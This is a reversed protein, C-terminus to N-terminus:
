MGGRLKNRLALLMLEYAHVEKNNPVFLNTMALCSNRTKPRRLKLLIWCLFVIYSSYPLTRYAIDLIENVDDIVASYDQLFDDSISGTFSFSDEGSMNWPAMINNPNIVDQLEKSDREKGNLALNLSSVQDEKADSYMAEAVKWYLAGAFSASITWGEKKYQNMLLCTAETAIEDVREPPLFISKRKIERLAISRAYAKMLLFYEDFNKKDNRDALFKRQYEQLRLETEPPPGKKRPRKIKSPM